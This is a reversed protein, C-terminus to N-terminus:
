DMKLLEAIAKKLVIASDLAKNAHNAASAAAEAAKQAQQEAAATEKVGSQVPASGESPTNVPEVNLKDLWTEVILTSKEFAKQVAPNQVAKTLGYSSAIIAADRTTPIVLHVSGILVLAISFNRIKTLNSIATYRTYTAQTPEIPNFGQDKRISNIRELRQAYSELPVSNSLFPWSFGFFTFTKNIARLEPTSNERCKEFAEKFVNQEDLQAQSSFWSFLILVISTVVLLAAGWGFYVYLQHKLDSLRTAAYIWYILTEM